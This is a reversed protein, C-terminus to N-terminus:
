PTVGSPELRVVGRARTEDVGPATVALDVTSGGAIRSRTAATLPFRLAASATPGPTLPGGQPAARLRERDVSLHLLRAVDVPGTAGRVQVDLSLGDATLRSAPVTVQLGGASLPTGEDVFTLVAGARSRCVVQGVRPDVASCSPTVVATTPAVVPSLVLWVRGGAEAEAQQRRDLPLTLTYTAVEGPGLLGRYLRRMAGRNGTAPGAVVLGPSGGGDPTAGVVVAVPGDASVTLKRDTPNRLRVILQLQGPLVIRRVVRAELGPLRKVADPEARFAPSCVRFATTGALRDCPLRLAPDPALRLTRYPAPRGARYLVVRITAGRFERAPLTVRKRWRGGPALRRDFRVIEGGLTRFRLSYAVSRGELNRVDAVLSRTTVTPRLERVGLETLPVRGTADSSRLTIQVAAALALVIVAGALVPAVAGPRPATWRGASPARDEARGGGPLLLGPVTLAAVVALWSTSTLPISLQSMAVGALALFAVSLAVSYGLREAGDPSWATRRRLATVWAWGPAVLLVPISLVSAPVSEPLVPGTLVVLALAVAVVCREALV